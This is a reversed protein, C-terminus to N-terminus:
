LNYKRHQTFLIGREQLSPLEELIPEFDSETAEVDDDDTNDYHFNVDVDVRQLRSGAPHTAISDLYSWVVDYYLDDYYADNDLMDENVHVTINFKLHELTAPSSSSVRLSRIFFSLISFHSITTSHPDVYFELVRLHSM